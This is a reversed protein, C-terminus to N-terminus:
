TNGGQQSVPPPSSPRLLGIEKMLTTEARRDLGSYLGGGTVHEIHSRSGDLIKVMTKIVWVADYEERKLHFIYRDKIMIRFPQVGNHKYGATVYVDTDRVGNKVIAGEGEKIGATKMELWAALAM